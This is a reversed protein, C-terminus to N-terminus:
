QETTLQDKAVRLWVTDESVDKIQDSRIFRDTDSLDPGDVRVFGYRLLQSRKPEPVDAQGGFISKVAVTFLDDPAATTGRPTVADPNGMQIYDVTGLENGDADRVLMGERVRAILGISDGFLHEENRSTNDHM